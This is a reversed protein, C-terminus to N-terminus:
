RTLVSESIVKLKVMESAEVIFPLSLFFTVTAVSKM